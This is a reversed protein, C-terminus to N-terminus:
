IKKINRKLKLSLIKEMQSLLGTGFRYNGEDAIHAKMTEYDRVMWAADIKKFIDVTAESGMNVSQGPLVFGSASNECECPPAACSAFLFLGLMTNILKKM